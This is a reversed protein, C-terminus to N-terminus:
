LTRWSNTENKRVVKIYNIGNEIKIHYFDSECECEIHDDFIKVELIESPLEFRGLHCKISKGMPLKEHM